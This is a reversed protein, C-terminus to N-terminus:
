IELSRRTYIMINRKMSENCAQVSYGTVDRTTFAHAQTSLSEVTDRLSHRESLQAIIM